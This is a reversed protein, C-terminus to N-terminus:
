LEDDELLSSLIMYKQSGVPAAEMGTQGNKYKVSFVATQKTTTMGLAAGFVGFIAGGVLGRFISKGIPDYTSILTSSVPTWDERWKKLPKNEM